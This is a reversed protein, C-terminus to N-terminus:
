ERIRAKVQNLCMPRKVIATYDPMREPKVPNMFVHGYRHDSIKMWIMLCLRRWSRHRD